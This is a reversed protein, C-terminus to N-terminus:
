LCKPKMVTPFYKMIQNSSPCQLINGSNKYEEIKQNLTKLAVNKNKEFHKYCTPLKNYKPTLIMSKSSYTITIEQLYDKNKNLKWCVVESVLNLKKYNRWLRFHSPQLVRDLRNKSHQKVVLFFIVFGYVLHM